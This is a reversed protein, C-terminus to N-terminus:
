FSPELATEPATKLHTPASLHASVITATRFGHPAAFPGFVRFAACLWVSSLRCVAIASSAPRWDARRRDWSLWFVGDCVNVGFVARFMRRTRLFPPVVARRVTLEANDWAVRQQSAVFAEKAGWEAVNGDLVSPVTAMGARLTAFLATRGCQRVVPLACRLPLM